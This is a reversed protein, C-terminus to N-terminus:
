LSSRRAKSARQVTTGRSTVAVMASLGIALVHAAGRQLLESSLPFTEGKLGTLLDLVEGHLQGVQHALHRAVAVGVERLLVGDLLEEPAHWLPVRLDDIRDLRQQIKLLEGDLVDGPPELRDLVSLLCRFGVGGNDAALQQVGGLLPPGEVLLFTGPWGLITTPTGAAALLVLRAAFAVASSSSAATPRLRVPCSTCVALAPCIAVVEVEVAVAGAVPGPVTGMGPTITAIALSTARRRM